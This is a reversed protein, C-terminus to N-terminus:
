PAARSYPCARSREHPETGRGSRHRRLRAHRYRRPRRIQRWLSPQDTGQCVRCCIPFLCVNSANCFSSLKILQRCTGYCLLSIACEVLPQANVKLNSSVGLHHGHCRRAGSESGTRKIFHPGCQEGILKIIKFHFRRQSRPFALCKHEGNKSILRYPCL